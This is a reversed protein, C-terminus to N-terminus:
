QEYLVLNRDKDCQLTYQKGLYRITLKERNLDNCKDELAEACEAKADSEKTTNKPSMKMLNYDFLTYSVVHAGLYGPALAGGLMMSGGVILGIIEGVRTELLPDFPGGTMFSGSM